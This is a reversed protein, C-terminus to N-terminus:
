VRERCSARGIKSFWGYKSNHFRFEVGQIPVDPHNEVVKILRLNSETKPTNGIEKVYELEPNSSIEFFSDTGFGTYCKNYGRPAEVEVGFYLGGNKPLGDLNIEGASNTKHTGGSTTRATNISMEKLEWGSSGKVAYYRTYWEGVHCNPMGKSALDVNVGIHNGKQDKIIEEDTFYYYNRLSNTGNEYIAAHHGTSKTFFQFVAFEVGGLPDGNLSNKKKIGFKLKGPIDMWNTSVSVDEGGNSDISWDAVVLNQWNDIPCEFFWLEAKVTDTTKKKATLDAKFKSIKTDTPICIYFGKGNRIKKKEIINLKEESDYVALKYDSIPKNNQDLIELKDLGNKAPIGEAVYPGFIYYQRNDILLYFM